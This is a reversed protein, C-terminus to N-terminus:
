HEALEAGRRTVKKSESLSASGSLLVRGRDDDRDDDKDDDIPCRDLPHDPCRHPITSEARGDM